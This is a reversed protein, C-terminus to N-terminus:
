LKNKLISTYDIGNSKCLSQFDSIFYVLDINNKLLYDRDNRLIRLQEKLDKNEKELKNLKKFCQYIDM